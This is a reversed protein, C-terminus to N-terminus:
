NETEITLIYYGNQCYDMNITSAGNATKVLRGDFSHVKVSKVPTDSKFNVIDTAPNPYVSVASDATVQNVGSPVDVYVLGNKINIQIFSDYAPFTWGTESNNDDLRNTVLHIYYTGDPLNTLDPTLKDFGSKSYYSNADLGITYRYTSWSKINKDIDTAVTAVYGNWVYNWPNALYTVYLTQLEDQKYPNVELSIGHLGDGINVFTLANDSVNYTGTFKVKLPECNLAIPYENDESDVFKEPYIEYETNTSFYDSDFTAGFNTAFDSKDYIMCNDIEDTYVTNGATDKVVMHITGFTPIEAANKLTIDFGCDYDM